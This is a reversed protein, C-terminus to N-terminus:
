ADVKGCDCGCESALRAALAAAAIRRPQTCGIRGTRGFGELLAAKPLQTTKGSGTAGCVIVVQNERIAKRIEPIKEAIPLESPIECRLKEACPVLSRALAAEIRTRFKIQEEETVTGLKLRALFRSRDPSLKRKDILRLKKWAQDLEHMNGAPNM